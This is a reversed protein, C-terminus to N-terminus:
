LSEGKSRAELPVESVRFEPFLSRVTARGFGGWRAIHEQIWQPPATETPQIAPMEALTENNMHLTRQLFARSCILDAVCM